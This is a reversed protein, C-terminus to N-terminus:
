VYEMDSLDLILPPGSANSEPSNAIPERNGPAPLKYFPLQAAVGPYECWVSRKLCNNCQPKAEDCQIPIYTSLRLLPIDEDHPHTVPLSCFYFHSASLHPNGVKIKRAKCIRCGTRTKRHPRRSCQSLITLGKNTEM